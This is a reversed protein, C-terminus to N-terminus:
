IVVIMWSLNVFIDEEDLEDEDDFMAILDVSFYKVENRIFKLRFRM